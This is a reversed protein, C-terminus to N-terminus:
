FTEGPIYRSLLAATHPIPKGALIALLADALTVADALPDLEIRTLQRFYVPGQGKVSLVVVKVDEPSRLGAKTLALLAGEAMYDDPFFFLDPLPKKAALFREMTIFANMKAQALATHSEDIQVPVSSANIHLANLPQIVSPEGSTVNWEFQVVSKPRNRKCARIFDPLATRMNLPIAGRNGVGTEARIGLTVFPIKRACLLKEIKADSAVVLALDFRGPEIRRLAADNPRHNPLLDLELTVPEYGAEYLRSAARALLIRFYYADNGRPVIFLVRGIRKKSRNPTVVIGVKPRPSVLGDAKLATVARRVVNQSVECEAAIENLTPLTTGSPYTGDKILKRLGVYLQRTLSDPLKNDIKPYKM